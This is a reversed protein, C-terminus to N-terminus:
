RRFTMRVKLDVPRDARLYLFYEGAEIEIGVGRPSLVGLNGVMRHGVCNGATRHGVCIIGTVRIAGPTPIVVVRVVGKGEVRFVLREPRQTIVYNSELITIESSVALLVLETLAAALVVALFNFDTGDKYELRCAMLIMSAGLFILKGRSWPTLQHGYSELRQRVAFYLVGWLAALVVGALAANKTSTYIVVAQAAASVVLVFSRLSV